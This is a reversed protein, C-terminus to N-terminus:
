IEINTVTQSKKEASIKRESGFSRPPPPPTQTLKSNIREAEAKTDGVQELRRAHFILFLYFTTKAALLTQDM